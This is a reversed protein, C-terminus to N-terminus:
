DTNAAQEELKQKKSLAATMAIYLWFITAFPNGPYAVTVSALLFSIFSAFIMAGVMATLDDPARALKYASYLISLILLLYFFLGTLGIESAVLLYNNHVYSLNAIPPYLLHDYDFKLYNETANNIGVGFWPYSEIMNLSILGRAIRSTKMNDGRDELQMVRDAIKEFNIFGFLLTGLILLWFFFFILKVNDRRIRSRLFTVVIVSGVFSALWTTRAFAFLIGASILFFAIGSLIQIRRDRAILLFGLPIFLLFNLYQAYRAPTALMGVVRFESAEHLSNTSSFGFNSHALQQLIGVSGQISAGITLALLALKFKRPRNLYNQFFLYFLFGKIFTYFGVKTQFPEIANKMSIGIVILLLISRILFQPRLSLTKQYLVAKFFWTSILVVLMADSMTITPNYIMYKERYVSPGFHKEILFSVFFITILFWSEEFNRLVWYFALNFLLFGAILYAKWGMSQLPSLLVYGVMFSLILLLGFTSWSFERNNSRTAIVSQM